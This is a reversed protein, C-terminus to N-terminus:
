KVKNSVKNFIAEVEKISKSGMNVEELLSLAFSMALNIDYGLEGAIKEVKKHVSPNKKALLGMIKEEKILGFGDFYKNLHDMNFTDKSM